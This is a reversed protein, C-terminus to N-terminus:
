LEMQLRLGVVLADPYIGSPTAIYQLDPQLSIRPALQARYFVELVTERNSGGQFLEGWSVGAGVSDFDRRPLLGTYVLGGVATDGISELLRTAGFFRPYYAAFMALGQMNAPDGDLERFLMQEWQLAYGHAASLPQEAIEAESQYAAAVVATGPFWGDGWAYKYELESILFVTDNGSFGWSGRDALADWAGLKLQLSQDLRVMAVAAMSQYPYTPLTSNPTLEFSSQVFHVATDIYIFETNVDQKGLRLTVADDLFQSEWWYEGVQTTNGFSDIDSLVLSDGVIDQTLGQGHTAQGLLHIRGPIQTGSRDFDITVALDLLGQYRVANNPSVGGRTNTHLDSNYVPRLEVFGDPDHLKDLLRSAVQNAFGDREPWSSGVLGISPPLEDGDVSPDLGSFCLAALAAIM